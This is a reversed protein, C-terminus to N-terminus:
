AEDWMQKSKYIKLLLANGIKRKKDDENDALCACSVWADHWETPWSSFDVNPPPADESSSSSSGSSSSSSRKRSRRPSRASEQMRDHPAAEEDHLAPEHVSDDDRRPAPASIDEDKEERRNEAVVDELALPAARAHQKRAPRLLWSALAADADQSWEGSASSKLGLGRQINSFEMQLRRLSLAKKSEHVDRTGNHIEAIVDKPNPPKALANEFVTVVPEANDRTSGGSERGPVLGVGLELFVRGEGAARVHGVVPLM